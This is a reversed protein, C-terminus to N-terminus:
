LGVEVHVDYMKRFTLAFRIGLTGQVIGHLLSRSLAGEATDGDLIIRERQLCVSKGREAGRQGLSM